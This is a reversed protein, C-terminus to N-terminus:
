YGCLSRYYQERMERACNQNMSDNLLGLCAQQRVYQPNPGSFRRLGTTCGNRSFQYNLFYYAGYGQIQPYTDAPFPIQDPNSAQPQPQPYYPQPSTPAIPQSSATQNSDDKKGCASALLLVAFCPILYVKNLM